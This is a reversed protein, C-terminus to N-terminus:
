ACLSCRRKRHEEPTEIKLDVQRRFETQDMEGAIAQRIYEVSKAHDCWGFTITEIQHQKGTERDIKVVGFEAVGDECTSDNLFVYNEHGAVVFGTCLTWTNDVLKEALEQKTAVSSVVWRRKNHM